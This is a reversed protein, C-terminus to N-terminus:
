DDARPFLFRRARSREEPTTIFRLITLLVALVGLAIVGYSHGRDIDILPPNLSAIAVLAVFSAVVVALLSVVSVAIRRIHESM